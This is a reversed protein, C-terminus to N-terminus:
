KFYKQGVNAFINEWFVTPNHRTDKWLLITWSLLSCVIEFHSLNLNADCKILLQFKIKM